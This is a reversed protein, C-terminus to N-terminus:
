EVDYIKHLQIGPRINEISAEQTRCYLQFTEKFREGYAEKHSSDEACPSPGTEPQLFITTWHPIQKRIKKVVDLTLNENVILKVENAKKALEEHITYGSVDKPSVTWWDIPLDQYYLGNTEIFVFYNNRKLEKMLPALDYELPEGGTIVVRSLPYQKKFKAISAMIEFLDHDVGKEWSYRTDCYTCKLSCGALRLFISPTGSRLGEGHFSWFIENIKLISQM